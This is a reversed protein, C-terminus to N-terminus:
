VPIYILYSVKYVIRSSVIMFHFKNRFLIVLQAFAFVDMYQIKHNNVKQLYFFVVSLNYM